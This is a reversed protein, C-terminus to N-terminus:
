HGSSRRWASPSTWRAATRSAASISCSPTVGDATVLNFVPEAGREVAAFDRVRLPHGGSDAVLLNEIDAISRVRGDVVALYLHHNEEHLGTSAILNNKPLADTVQTLSLNAAQLRLPDVVIHYEPSRGGVLDVRAVGPIRLFRPKLNYRATEWLETLRRVRSTLSIGIIPFGSFTLRYVETEATAPLTARIQALRGIVYLESQVM